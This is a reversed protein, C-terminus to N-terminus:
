RPLHLRHGAICDALERYATYADGDPRFDVTGLDELDIRLTSRGRVDVLTVGRVKAWPVDLTRPQRTPSADLRMLPTLGLAVLGVAVNEVAPAGPLQAHAVFALAVAIGVILLAVLWVWAASAAFGSIRLGTPLEACHGRGAILTARSRTVAGARFTGALQVSTAEFGM